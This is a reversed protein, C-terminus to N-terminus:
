DVTIRSPLCVGLEQEEMYGEECTVLQLVVPASQSRCRESAVMFCKGLVKEIWVEIDRMGNSVWAAALIQEMCKLDIELLGKSRMSTEFVKRIKKLINEALSDFDFPKFEVTEDVLDFFEDLWAESNESLSDSEEDTVDLNKAEMEEISLNLDLSLHSTRQGKVFEELKRKNVSVHGSSSSRDLSADYSTVVVNCGGKAVPESSYHFLIKMDWGQAALIRQESFKDYDKGSLATKSRLGRVTTVFITNNIGIERGHTNPFKGTKVAQSLSNQLMFDAKDVNELFVVSLPKESIEGAIYDVVTKGRLDYGSIKQGLDVVSHSPTDCDQASLDVSVFKEKSGFVLEALAMAIKKQGVRDPGMFSLWIDGKLSAGRRRENGARCHAITQSIACIAAEQRGLKETLTKWLSKFDRSDFQKTADTTDLGQLDCAGKIGKCTKKVSPDSHVGVPSCGTFDKSREECIEFDKKQEKAPGYNTGLMLDTTVSTVSSPSAQRYGVGTDSLACLEYQLHDKQLEESKSLRANPRSLLNEKKSESVVPVPTNQCSVSIKQKNTLIPFENKGGGQNPSTSKCSRCHSDSPEKNDAICPLSVVGPLCQARVRNCDPELIQCSRHINLCIDNWKKQLGMVKAYLFAGDDKTKAPDCGSKGRVLDARQLWTPLSAHPQDGGPLTPGKMIEALEQQYKEDCIGCRISLTQYTSSVPSRLDSITSFFGGFPVFSEMLSHRRPHLRGLGSSISTIPLLQLDWDKELTPHLSHFKMYTEYNSACGILWLRRERHLELLRSLEAVVLGDDRFNKLDGVDIVVGSEALPGLEESMSRLSGEMVEKDVSVFKLGALERPVQHGTGGREVCCQFNRVAERASVGILFPNKNRSKTLVECIRRCNEDFDSVDPQTEAFNCLFLPPFRARPFRPGPPRIIALKIDTSRFGAEGFVRSVVPDDLISLVLQRLEVKILLISSAQSQNAQQQFSHQNNFTDPNRRQNAQSRKIAAMLSNSIPPEDLPQSSPLRDLAVSFCLELARLQFRPSYASSRVRSCAERLLSSPLALLASVAHLSTTQSHARRRAVTVADELARAADPTLCQRAASVPTPM